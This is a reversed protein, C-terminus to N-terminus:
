IEKNVNDETEADNNGDELNCDESELCHNVKNEFNDNNEIQLSGSILILLQTMTLIIGNQIDDKYMSKPSCTDRARRQNLLTTFEIWYMEIQNLYATYHTSVSMHSAQSIIDSKWELETRM